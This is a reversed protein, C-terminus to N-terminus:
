CAHYRETRLIDARYIETLLLQNLNMSMTRKGFIEYRKIDMTVRLYYTNM